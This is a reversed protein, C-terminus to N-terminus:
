EVEQLRIASTFVVPMAGEWKGVITRSPSSKNFEPYFQSDVLSTSLKRDLVIEPSAGPFLHFYVAAQHNGVGTLTDIVRLERDGLELRRRHVVPERLRQYGSHAAEAWSTGDTQVDLPEARRAVRFCAWMESQDVGDIVVTNHAATSRQYARLSGPEYTSTGSNVLLRRGHHSLEFSLADSHAHGAQYSAGARAADFLVIAGGRELRIYGSDGLECTRAEIGLAAAYREIDAPEPAIGWAADNFFAIRGDPHCTRRLWGIMSGATKRAQELINAPFLEPYAAALNVIDLLDELLLSHYMPSLEFHGGDLHIQERWEARLIGLGRELWRRAHPTDLFVGAFVLAKANTLLHNGLLHYELNGALHAAQHALSAVAPADLLGAGNLEWKIWNVLRLSIPYPEWGPRSGPPNENIWRAILVKHWAAREAAGQSRLDDFYHLNYLWLRSLGFRNWDTPNPTEHEENLLQFRCPGVLSQRSPIDGKWVGTRARRHVPEIPRAPARGPLLRTYIQVPRLNRVTRFYLGVNM